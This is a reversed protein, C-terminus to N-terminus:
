TIKPHNRFIIEVGDETNSYRLRGHHLRAIEHCLPVGLGKGDVMDEPMSHNGNLIHLKRKNLYDGENCIRIENKRFTVTIKEGYRSANSLLNSLLSKLLTKDGYFTDTLLETKIFPYRKVVFEALDDTPIREMTITNNRLNGMILIREILDNIYKAERDIQSSAYAIDEPAVKGLLIYQAYGQIATLPTRLEHAINSVPHYIKKLSYYFFAALLVAIVSATLLFVISNKTQNCYIASVDEVYAIKMRGNHGSQLEKELYAYRRNYNPHSLGRAGSRSPLSRDKLFRFHGDEKAQNKMEKALKDSFPLFDVITEQEEKAGTTISLYIGRKKLTKCYQQIQASDAGDSLMNSLIFLFREQSELIKVSERELNQWFSFQLVFFIGSYLIFYCIGLTLVFNKEWLKLNKM